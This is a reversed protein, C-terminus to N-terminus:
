LLDLEVLPQSKLHTLFGSHGNEWEDYTLVTVNVDRGLRRSARDAEGRVEGVDTDGIV